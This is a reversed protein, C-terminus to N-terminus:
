NDSAPQLNSVWFTIKGSSGGGRAAQGARRIGPLSTSQAGASGGDVQEALYWRLVPSM